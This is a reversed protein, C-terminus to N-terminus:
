GERKFLLREIGTVLRYIARSLSFDIGDDQTCNELARYDPQFNPHLPDTFAYPNM